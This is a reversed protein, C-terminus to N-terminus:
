RDDVNKHLDIHRGFTWDPDTLMRAVVLGAGIALISLSASM